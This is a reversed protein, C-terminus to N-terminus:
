ASLSASGGAGFVAAAAQFFFELRRRMARAPCMSRDLAIRVGVRTETDTDDAFLRTPIVPIFQGSAVDAADDVPRNIHDSGLLNESGLLNL